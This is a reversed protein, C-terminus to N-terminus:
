LPAAYNKLVANRARKQRYKKGLVHMLGFGVSCVVLGGIASILIVAWLPFGNLQEAPQKLLTGLTSM